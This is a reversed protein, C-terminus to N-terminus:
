KLINLEGITKLFILNESRAGRRQSHEIRRDNELIDSEGIQRRQREDNM